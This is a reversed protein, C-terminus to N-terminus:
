ARPAPATARGARGGRQRAQAQSVPVPSLLEIGTKAAFQRPARAHGATLLRRGQERPNRRRSPPPPRPRPPRPPPPRPPPRPPRALSPPPPPRARVAAKGPRLRRRLAARLHHRLDRRHQHLRHGELRRRHRKNQQVAKRTYHWAHTNYTRQTIWDPLASPAPASQCCRQGSRISTVKRCGKPAPEFCQMQQHQPLAAYLPLCILKPIAGSSAQSLQKCRRELLRVMADIDEQATWLWLLPAATRPRSCRSADLVLTHRPRAGPRPPLGARRRRGATLPPDAPHHHPDRRSLRGGAGAHVVGAGAAAAAPPFSPQPLQRRARHVCGYIPSTPSTSGSGGAPPLSLSEQDAACRSRSSDARSTSCTRGESTTPTNTRRWPRRCLWWGCTQGRLRGPWSRTRWRRPRRRPRRRELGRAPRLM